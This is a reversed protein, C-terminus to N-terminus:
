NLCFFSVIKWNLILKEEKKKREKMKKEWDKYGFSIVIVFESVFDLM